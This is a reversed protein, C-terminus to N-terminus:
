QAAERSERIVCESTSRTSGKGSRLFFFVFFLRLIWLGAQIAGPRLLLRAVFFYGPKPIEETKIQTRDSKLVVDLEEPSWRHTRARTHAQTRAHTHQRHTQAHRTGCCNKESLSRASVRAPTRNSARTRARASSPPAAAQGSRLM